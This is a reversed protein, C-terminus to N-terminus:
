VLIKVERAQRRMARRRRLRQVIRRALILPEVFIPLPDDRAAVPGELPPRLSKVYPRLKVRRALIERDYTWMDTSLRVWRVGPRGIAFEVDEGQAVRYAIYPFDVGAAAGISHWGWSRANVDLLKVLGNRPDRKFEVEVPGTLKLDAIFRMSPEIVEPLDVTEVYTSARGFDPPMQRTRQATLYAIVEGDRCTSGFSLQCEGGGPIVEQIMLQGAPLFASAEAYRRLLEDRDHVRWVKVDSIPNDIVGSAPKLIVPYELELESAEEVSDTYWTSPVAIGLAAARAYALTKDQAISWQPWPSTTLRFLEGLAESNRSIFEASKDGTPFLVWGELGHEKGYGLLFDTQDSDFPGPWTLKHQSYRSHTALADGRQAVWVPVGQRGLSRVVGLGRYDGGLVLAGVKNPATVV